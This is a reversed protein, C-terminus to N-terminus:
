ATLILIAKHRLNEHVVKLVVVDLGGLVCKECENGEIQELLELSCSVKVEKAKENELYFRQM